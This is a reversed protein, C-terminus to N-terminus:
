HRSKRRHKKIEIKKQTHTNYRYNVCCLWIKRLDVTHERKFMKIVTTASTGETGKRRPKIDM